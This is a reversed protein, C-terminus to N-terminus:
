NSRPISLILAKSIDFVVQPTYGRGLKPSWYRGHALWHRLKFTGRFAAVYIGEQEMAALIDEDLRIKDQRERQIRRCNGSLGDKKRAVARTKCEIRLIAESTALLEFMTVRDLRSRQADFANRVEGRTLGVFRSFRTHSGHVLDASAPLERLVAILADSILETQFEYWNWVSDLDPENESDFV